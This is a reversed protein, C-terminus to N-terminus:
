WRRSLGGIQVKQLLRDLYKSKLQRSALVQKMPPLRLIAGLIAALVRHSMQAQRDFILQPLKGREIAMLAVRHASNVPTLVRQERPVLRIAKPNCVRTCVGCGLCRGEELRVKRRGRQQFNHASVLTAAEVPCADVCRGCGSCDADAVTAIFNTTYVPQEIAFRRVALLPECCCGCCNCLFNVGERVNDGCQLLNRDRGEQLLDLGELADIRRAHGHRILSAAADNLTLCIELPADCSRDLHSMKHRCYCLGVALHQASRIVESAREYELVVSGYEEVAQENVFFRGIATEDAALLERIFDQEVNLYQYFLESLVKQDIDGRVRMLSFEFFGAMPPPLLYVMEGERELDLLVGKAALNDLERRAEPEGMKWLRAAAADTVPRLPLRGALAAERETFLLSLIRYLLDSPPAGQPFANLRAVLQRYATKSTHHTM